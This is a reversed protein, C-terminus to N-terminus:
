FLFILTSSHSFMTSIQFRTTYKCQITLSTFSFHAFMMPLPLPNPWNNGCINALPPVPIDDFPQASCLIYTLNSFYFISLLILSVFLAISQSFCVTLNRSRDEYDAVVKEVEEEIKIQAKNKYEFRQVLFFTLIQTM